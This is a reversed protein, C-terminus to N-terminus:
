SSPSAVASRSLAAGLELIRPGSDLLTKLLLPPAFGAAVWGTCLHLLLSLLDAADLLRQDIGALEAIFDAIAVATPAGLVTVTVRSGERVLGIATGDAFSRQLGGAFRALSTVAAQAVDLVQTIRPGENEAGGEAAAAKGLLSRELAARARALHEGLEAIALFPSALGEDDSM